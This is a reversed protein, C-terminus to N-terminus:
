ARSTSVLQNEARDLKRKTLIMDIINEQSLGNMSNIGEDDDNQGDFLNVTASTSAVSSAGSNSNMIGSSAVRNSKASDTMSNAYYSSSYNTNNFSSQQEIKFKYKNIGNIITTILTPSQGVLSTATASSTASTQSRAQGGSNSQSALKYQGVVQIALFGHELFDLIDQDVSEISVFHSHNFHLEDDISSSGAKQQRGGSGTLDVELCDERVMKTRIFSKDRNLTYQCYIRCYKEPVNRCTSIRILFVLKKGLLDRPQEVFVEALEEETYAQFPGEPQQQQSNSGQDVVADGGPRSSSTQQRSVAGNRPEVRCPIAQINIAGVIDDNLDLIDFSDNMDARHSLPQLTVQAHGILVQSTAPDDIFPDILYDGQYRSQEILYEVLGSKGGTDWAGYLELMKVRRAQFKEKSWYYNLDLEELHVNVYLAPPVDLSDPRISHSVSNHEEGQSSSTTKNNRSDNNNNSNSNSGSNSTADALSYSGSYTDSSSSDIYGVLQEPLQEEGTLIKLGYSVKIGMEKAVANAEAVPMAFEYTDQMLRDRYSEDRAEAEPEAKAELEAGAAVVEKVEEGKQITATSALRWAAEPQDNTTPGSTSTSTEGTPEEVAATKDEDKHKDMDKGGDRRKDQSALAQKNANSAQEGAAGKAKHKGTGPRHTYDNIERIMAENKAESMVKRLVEANAMDYTVLDLDAVFDHGDQDTRAASTNDIFVFYANSGFLLRDCHHLRTRESVLTGNVMLAVKPEEKLGSADDARSDPQGSEEREGEKSRGEVIPEIFVESLKSGNASSIENRLIRAHQGRLEPGFLLIDCDNNKGVIMEGQKIIYSIMGTLQEDQNLNSLYPNTLKLSSSLATVRSLGNEEAQQKGKAEGHLLHHNSRKPRPIRNARMASMEYQKRIKNAVNSNNLLKNILGIKEENTLGEDTLAAFSDDSDPSLLGEEIDGLDNLDIEDLLGSTLEIEAAEPPPPPQQQQQLKEDAVFTQGSTSSHGLSDTRSLTKSQRKSTAALDQGTSRSKRVRGAKGLGAEPGAEVEREEEEEERLKRSAPSVIRKMQEADVALSPNSSSGALGRETVTTNPRKLHRGATKPSSAQQQQEGKAQRRVTPRGRSPTTPTSAKPGNFNDVMNETDDFNSTQSSDDSRTVRGDVMQKLRENEKQLVNVIEGRSMRNVVAHTRIQKARDAFRLTSLTDDYNADAPSLTAILVVKSNGSLCCRNLLKTLVSDRYPIKPQQKGGRAQQQQQQEVLSQQQSYQSLVQICNGLASLSQNISVSEKFRQQHQNHHNTQAPAPRRVSSSSGAAPNAGTTQPAAPTASGASSASTPPVRRRSSARASSVLAGDAGLTTPGSAFPSSSRSGIFSEGTGAGGLQGTVHVAMRESGALDVMQVVSSTLSEEPQQRGAESSAVLTRYQKIRFEYITHGRSSTENMSTAAISKNLQGEEIRREIATKDACPYSTLNEVFFGRKPHERVKLGRRTLNSPQSIYSNAPALLDRVVENYIEIMSFSVEYRNKGKNSTESRGNNNDRQEGGAGLGDVLRAPPCDPQTEAAASALEMRKDLEAFLARAFRPLIGENQGYGSVTYSKGSGTQGYALLASDYGELANQLLFLGCEEFVREQGVYKSSNPHSQDPVNFGDSNRKFGDHSWYSHDFTFKKLGEAPQQRPNYIAVTNQEIDVIRKCNRQRERETFPRLRVAVKINELQSSSAPPGAEQQGAGAVQQQQEAM